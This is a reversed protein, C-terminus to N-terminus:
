LGTTQYKLSGRSSGYMTKAAKTTSNRDKHCSLLDDLKPTNAMNARQPPQLTNTLNSTLQKKVTPAFCHNIPFTTVM